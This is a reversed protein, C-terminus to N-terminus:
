TALFTYIRHGEAEQHLFLHNCKPTPRTRPVLNLTFAWLCSVLVLVDVWPVFYCVKIRYRFFGLTLMFMESSCAESLSILSRSWSSWDDSSFCLSTSMSEVEVGSWWCGLFWPPHHKPCYHLLARVERPSLGNSLVRQCGIVWCLTLHMTSTSTVMWKGTRIPGVGQEVWSQM